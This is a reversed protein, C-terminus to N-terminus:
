SGTAPGDPRAPQETVPAASQTPTAGRPTAQAIPRVEPPSGKPARPPAFRGWLAGLVLFVVGLILIMPVSLALVKFVMLVLALGLGFLLGYIAGRIPHYRVTSQAPSLTTTTM